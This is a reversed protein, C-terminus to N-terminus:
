GPYLALLLILCRAHVPARSAAHHAPGTKAEAADAQQGHGRGGRAGRAALAVGGAAVVGGVVAIAVLEGHHAIQPPAQRRAGNAPLRNNNNNNNSNNNNNNNNNNNVSPVVVPRQQPLPVAPMAPMRLPPGRQRGAAVRARDKGGKAKVRALATNLLGRAKGAM